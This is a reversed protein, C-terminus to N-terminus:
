SLFLCIEGNQHIYYLEYEKTNVYQSPFKKEDGKDYM